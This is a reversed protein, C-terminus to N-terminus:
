LKTIDVFSRSVVSHPIPAKPDNLHADRLMTEKLPHIAINAVTGGSTGKAVQGPNVVLTGQVDRAMSTLKSPTILVDPNCKMRWHSSQRQDM